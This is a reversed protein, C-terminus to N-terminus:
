EQGSKTAPDVGHEQTQNIAATFTATATATAIGIALRGPATAWGWNTLDELRGGALAGSAGGCILQFGIRPTNCM